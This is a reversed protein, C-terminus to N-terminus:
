ILFDHSVRLPSCVTTTGQEVSDCAAALLRVKSTGIVMAGLRDRMDKLSTALALVAMIESCVM